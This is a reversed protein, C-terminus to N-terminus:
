ASCRPCPASPLGGSLEPPRACFRLFADVFGHGFALIGPDSDFPVENNRVFAITAEPHSQFGWIPLTRHAFAENACSPTRGRNETHEPLTLVAESHSVVVEGESAAGWLPDAAYPVTRVGKLKTRDESLFGVEGGLMHALLQHGYCLGLMPVTRLHPMLWADLAVQWPLGDHVSAGSGMIVIGALDDGALELSRVGHMSPLHYTLPLSCAVSMRNFSDLEPLRTGPDIIAIHPM